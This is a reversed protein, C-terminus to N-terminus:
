LRRELWGGVMEVAEALVAVRFAEDRSLSLIQLTTLVAQTVEALVNLEAPDRDPAVEAQSAGILAVMAAEQALRGARLAPHHAQRILTLYGPNARLFSNFSWAEVCLVVDARKVVM